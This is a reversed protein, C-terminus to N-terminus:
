LQFLGTGLTAGAETLHLLIKMRPGLNVLPGDTLEAHSEVPRRIDTRNPIESVSARMPFNHRRSRLSATDHYETPVM